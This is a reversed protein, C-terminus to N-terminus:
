CDESIKLNSQQLTKFKQIFPNFSDIEAPLQTLFDRIQLISLVPVDNLLKCNGPILSLIAPIFKAKKWQICELHLSKNPLSKALSETRSKQAQVIKNLASSSIRRFWHKCDICIVLPKRCGIVDIEYRKGEYKFRVNKWVRYGSKELAVSTFDEFEKWHLYKSLCELDAGFNLAMLAIKVRSEGTLYVDNKELFILEEKQLYDILEAAKTEPIKADKTLIEKDVVGNATLKLLSILLYYEFKL